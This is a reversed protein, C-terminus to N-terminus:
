NALPVEAIASLDVSKLMEQWSTAVTSNNPQRRKLEALTALSDYWIGMNALQSAVELSSQNNFSRESEVRRIWGSVWPSDPELEETCIMVLSWQYNKGIKLASVSSPLQIEIVGPKKPLALTTQYYQGGQEDRLAFLAKKAKTQPVYVLIPPREALTLGINTKPLLPTVSAETTASMDAGCTSADRSAGGTSTKPAQTKPPKFTVQAMSPTIEFPISSLSILITIVWLKIRLLDQKKIDM